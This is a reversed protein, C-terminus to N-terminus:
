ISCSAGYCLSDDSNRNRNDTKEPKNLNILSECNGVVKKAAAKLACESLWVFTDSVNEGTKASVELYQIHNKRAWNEADLKRVKRNEAQDCKNGVLFVEV